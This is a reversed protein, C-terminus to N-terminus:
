KRVPAECTSGQGAMGLAARAAAGAVSGPAFCLTSVNQCLELPNLLKEEGPGQKHRM